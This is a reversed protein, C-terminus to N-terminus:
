GDAGPAMKWGLQDFAERLTCGSRHCYYLAIVAMEVKCEGRELIKQCQVAAHLTQETLKGSGILYRTVETGQSGLLQIAHRYENGNILDCEKLLNLVKQLDMREQTGSAPNVTYFTGSKSQNTIWENDLNIKDVTLLRELEQGLAKATQYRSNPDKELCRFIVSEIQAPIGLSPAFKDFREPKRTVQMQMTALANPGEFPRHGSLSEYMVCGLSYIDSRADMETGLCQEPSMYFPSGFVDGTQTLRQSAKGDPRVIKAIGFDVLKVLDSNQDVKILMINAPKVDRHIVRNIHAHHLASCAQLFITLFRRIELPGDIAILKSLVEGDLFEMAIFPLGDESFGYDHVMLLNPHRLHITAKAEREFRIRAHEDEVLHPHLVKLAIIRNNPLDVAQYIRGMGGHGIQNMVRYRGAFIENEGLKRYGLSDKVVNNPPAQEATPSKTRAEASPATKKLILRHIEDTNETTVTFFINTANDEGPGLEWTPEGNIGDVFCVALMYSHDSGQQQWRLYQPAPSTQAAHEMLSSVDAKSPTATHMPDGHRRNEKSRFADLLHMTINM